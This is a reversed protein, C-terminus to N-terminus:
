SITLFYLLSAFEADIVIQRHSVGLRSLVHVGVVEILGEKILSLATVAADTPGLAFGDVFDVQVEVRAVFPVALQLTTLLDVVAVAGQIVRVM